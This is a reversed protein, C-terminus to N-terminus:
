SKLRTAGPRWGDAGLRALAALRALYGGSSALIEFAGMEAIKGDKLVAVKDAKALSSVRHSIVLTGRGKRSKILREMIEEEVAADVASLTDDLILFPPDILLARALALRQRQGGSLTLGREGILTDLGQPFVGPDLPLAADSAAKLLESDQAGPRGFSLNDRMTGTFTHGDQPVYGFLARLKDLPWLTSERGGIIIAGETPEFLAPFLSALTSKGCGTPGTLATISGPALVLSLNELVPGRSGPYSFGVNKLEIEFPGEPSSFSAAEPHVKPEEATLVKSLRGLSALGEQVLGLTLGMAMMPWSLLALYSIFAVFDGASIESVIAARGGIFLTLALALNTLLSMLPFFGGMVLSLRINKNMYLRSVKEVESMSLPELAMARIVKLGGLQERVVETLRGFINQTEMVRRFIVMGFRWTLVSILPMPMFAWLSLWPNISLMFGVAAAGLALADMLSVLGFGVAMRVSEIDNTALAMMDGSYNKQHWSLSLLTFKEQLRRRLERELKRSFGYILHRWVYRLAAVMLAIGVILLLVPKIAAGTAEFDSLLDITKGVLRPIVMQGLDCAALCLFGLSLRLAAPRM